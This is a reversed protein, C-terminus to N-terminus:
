RARPRPAAAGLERIFRSANAYATGYVVRAPTIGSQMADALTMTRSYTLLLSGPRNTTPEAKVRTLGVYLLRRQEELSARQEAPTLEPDPAAPLLGEICGAIVVVPSSLGKSKHLSMIRVQTVDPPIEPTSVAEILASFLEEPTEVTPVLDLVLTRFEGIEDIDDRLWRHVLATLDGDGRFEEVEGSIERFREVLHNTYPIAIRGASLECMVEWPAMRSSESHARVRAYAGRRFDNSGHGLLWRLAIRDQPNIFLKFLALREQASVGDLAGEQYYSRSPINQAVLADHIPNGISRRQALVLIDEPRRGHSDIQERTFAAIGAAEEALTGFQLIQIDGVGNALIPILQRPERDRNNAILSNAIAVVRTPCRRCNLVEHDTSGPHSDPFTRIGAPHAFKFSYLSQDDDGVICLHADESLLDIVVQEARNLDQYEDVLVHDYLDREPAAPNDRLYQYVQPIIEGILMGEHFRLWDVLTQEFRQDDPDHAYGPEEHQLRAWAAEYARIAKARQRKNGFEPSLDYLLPEMEFRNLPRAVRGTARLVNQRSLIKMGLAHLTSGRIDECGAVGIRMMERQLDEAAVNTFTVPLIRQPAIGEELLRAVRRKLAFSKGTGPGAVVRVFRSQDAAIGYAPSNPDLEDDWPM